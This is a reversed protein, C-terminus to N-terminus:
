RVGDCGHDASVGCMGVGSATASALKEGGRKAVSACARQCQEVGIGGREATRQRNGIRRLEVRRAPFGAVDAPELVVPDSAILLARQTDRAVWGVFPGDKETQHQEVLVHMALGSDVHRLGLVNPQWFREDCRRPCYRFDAREREGRAFPRETPGSTSEGEVVFERRLFHQHRGIVDPKRCCRSGAARM